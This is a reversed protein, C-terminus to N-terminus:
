IAEGRLLRPLDGVAGGAHRMFFRRAPGIQNVLGLGLDRALRVPAIDNSFLRNLGDMLLSLAVNDFRRWRQYRELVTLAGIDLGLRAADVIVEAAAAVDRLGLNLGQGAIPHIGHAADGVLALRPRVYDRALQLSLPYSWRPGVPKCAGLYDGFRARMEDAFAEDDLAMITAAMETKETWVLSARNGVMPLIAFPGGPLFYEQAVGDHPREHEVTTVIGAQNYDWGVTRIGAAVRTPSNRGDAALCLKASVRAGNSLRATVGEGYAVREVSLPALLRIGKAEELAKQLAIRIHRNEILQGLPQDGIESHDFHLFLPSAGERVRGDSVVIDNIPQTQGELHKMIGLEDFMRCSAFAIASVRGDFGADVVRAPDQADVVTVGLGGQALALALPLGTLGGGVILVDSEYDAKEM